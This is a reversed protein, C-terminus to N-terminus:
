PLIIEGTITGTEATIMSPDGFRHLEIYVDVMGVADEYRGMGGVIEYFGVAIAPVFCLYGGDVSNAFLMSGDKFNAIMQFGEGFLVGDVPAPTDVCVNGPPLVDHPVPDPGWGVGSITAGGPSGKLTLDFRKLEHGDADVGIDMILGNLEWNIPIPGHNGSLAALPFALLVIVLLLSRKM